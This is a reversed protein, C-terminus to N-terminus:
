KEYRSYFFSEREQQINSLNYVHYIIHLKLYTLTAVHAATSTPIAGRPAKNPCQKAVHPSSSPTGTSGDVKFQM